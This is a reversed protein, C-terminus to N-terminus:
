LYTRRGCGLRSQWYITGDAQITGAETGAEKWYKAHDARVCDQGIAEGGSLGPRVDLRRGQIESIVQFRDKPPIAIADIMAQHVGDAIARRYEPTTGERLSIRVLPM